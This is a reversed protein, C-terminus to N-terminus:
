DNNRQFSNGVNRVEVLLIDMQCKFVVNLVVFSRIIRTFVAM